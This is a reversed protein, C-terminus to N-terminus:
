SLFKHRLKFIFTVMERFSYLLHRVTFILSMIFQFFTFCEAINWKCKQIETTGTKWECEEKSALKRVLMSLIQSIILFLIHVYM